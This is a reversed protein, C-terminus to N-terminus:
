LHHSARSQGTVKYTTRHIYEFSNKGSNSRIKVRKKDFSNTQRNKVEDNALNNNDPALGKKVYVVVELM